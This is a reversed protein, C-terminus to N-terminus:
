GPYSNSQFAIYEEEDVDFIEDEQLVNLNRESVTDVVDSMLYFSDANLLANIREDKTVAADDLYELTPLFSIVCSRYETRNYVLDSCSSGPNGMM